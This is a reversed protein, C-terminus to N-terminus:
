EAYTYAPSNATRQDPGRIVDPAPKEPDHESTEEWSRPLSRVKRAGEPARKQPDFLSLDFRRDAALGALAALAAVAAVATAALMLRVADIQPLRWRLAARRADIQAAEFEAACSYVCALATGAREASAELAGLEARMRAVSGRRLM